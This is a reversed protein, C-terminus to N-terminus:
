HLIECYMLNVHGYIINKIDIIFDKKGLQLNFFLIKGSSIASSILEKTDKGPPNEM